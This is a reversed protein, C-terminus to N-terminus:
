DATEDPESDEAAPPETEEPMEDPKDKIKKMYRSAIVMVIVVAVIYILQKAM